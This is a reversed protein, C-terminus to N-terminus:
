TLTLKGKNDYVSLTFYLRNISNCLIGTGYSDTMKIFSGECDLIQSNYLLKATLNVYEGVNLTSMVATFDVTKSVDGSIELTSNKKKFGVVNSNDSRIPEILLKKQEETKTFTYPVGKSDVFYGFGNNDDTKLWMGIYNKGSVNVKIAHVGNKVLCSNIDKGKTELIHGVDKLLTVFSSNSSDAPWIRTFQLSTGTKVAIWCSRAISSSVDDNATFLGTGSTGTKIWFGNCREVSGNFLLLSFKVVNFGTTLTDFITATNGTTANNINVDIQGLNHIKLSSCLNIDGSSELVNFLQQVNLNNNDNNGSVWFVSNDNFLVGSGKRKLGKPESNFWIGTGEATKFNGQIVNAGENLNLLNSLIKEESSSTVNQPIISMKAKSVINNLSSTDLNGSDVGFISFRHLIDEGFSYGIWIDIDSLSYSLFLGIGYLSGYNIWWGFSNVNDVIAKVCNFGQATNERFTKGGDITSIKLEKWSFTEFDQIVTSQTGQSILKGKLTINDKWILYINNTLDFFFGSGETENRLWWGYGNREAIRASFCCFGDNLIKQHMTYGGTNLSVDGVSIWITKDIPYVRETTMTGDALGFMQWVGHNPTWAAAVGFGTEDTKMWYGYCEYIDKKSDKYHFKIFTAGNDLNNSLILGGNDETIIEEIETWSATGPIVVTTTIGDRGDTGDKGNFQGSHIKEELTKGDSFFVESAKTGIYIETWTKTKEDFIAPFGAAFSM